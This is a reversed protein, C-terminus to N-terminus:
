RIRTGVKSHLMEEGAVIEAFPVLLAFWYVHMLEEVRQHLGIVRYRLLGIYLNTAGILQEVDDYGSALQLLREALRLLNADDHCDQGAGISFDAHRLRHTVRNADEILRPSMYPLTILM